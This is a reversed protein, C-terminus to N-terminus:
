TDLQEQELGIMRGAAGEGEFQPLAPHRAGGIEAHDAQLLFAVLDIYSGGTGPLTIVSLHGHNLLGLLM